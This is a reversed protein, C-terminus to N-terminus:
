FTGRYLIKVFTNSFCKRRTVDPGESRSPGGRGCEGGDWSMSKVGGRGINEASRRWQADISTQPRSAHALASHHIVSAGAAADHAVTTQLPM